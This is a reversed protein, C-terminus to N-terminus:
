QATCTQSIMKVSTGHLDPMDSKDSTTATATNTNNAASELTGTVEIQHNLHGKLQSDLGKIEYMTGLGLGSTASTGSMKVNTLVFDNDMHGRVTAADKRGPVDKEEKLCGTITVVQGATTSPRQRDDTMPRQRDTQPPTQPRTQAPTQANLTLAAAMTMAAAVASIVSTRM